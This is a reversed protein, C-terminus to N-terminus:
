AMNGLLMRRPATHCISLSRRLRLNDDVIGSKGHAGFMSRDQPDGLFNMGSEFVLYARDILWSALKTKDSKVWEVMLVPKHREISQAAGELVELEMGEVDIKMMDIRPVALLDISATPVEVIIAPSYDVPQGIFETTNRKRLELSGFSGPQLYDPSPIKM